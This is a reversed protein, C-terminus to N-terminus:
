FTRFVKKGANHADGELDKTTDKDQRSYQYKMLTDKMKWGTGKGTHM